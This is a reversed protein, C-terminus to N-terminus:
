NRLCSGSRDPISLNGKVNADGPSSTLRAASVPTRYIKARRAACAACRLLRNGRKSRQTRPESPAKSFDWFQFACGDHFHLVTSRRVAAAAYRSFDQRPAVRKGIGHTNHSISVDKSHKKRDCAGGVPVPPPERGALRGRPVLKHPRDLATLGNWVCISVGKPILRCAKAPRAIAWM